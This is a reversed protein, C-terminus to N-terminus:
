LSLKEYKYFNRISMNRTFKDVMRYVSGHNDRLTRKIINPYSYFDLAIRRMGRLLDENSMNELRFNLNGENYRSWDRCTIRGECDLRQFLRTGPYPTVISFSVEDLGWEYIAKLTADFSDSTDYDFGFMFFGTVMMGHDKIKRIAKGYEEVKNTTKGAANINEQSISEIGVYWTSVGAKEALRLLEDDRSLVNINGFCEFSKNVEKAIKKFLAKTYGPNITLSADTFFISKAKIIKMESVVHDVPRGRFRPGEVIQMACFECGTPCGRSAQIAETFPHYCGIDHRASPIEWPEVLREPKYFPQLNGSEIDRLVRPWTLEAEGIVVADAHQKAEDPLLSAHYGGFIVKSGKGRFIDAIEYGRISNYTLCSIGVVDYKKNFDVPEYREDIIRVKHERPTIAAIQQLTLSPYSFRAFLGRRPNPHPMVLLINM